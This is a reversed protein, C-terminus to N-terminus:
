PESKLGEDLRKVVGAVQVKLVAKERQLVKAKESLRDLNAKYPMEEIVLHRHRIRSVQCGFFTTAPEVTGDNCQVALRELNALMAEMAIRDSKITRTYYALDRLLVKLHVDKKDFAHLFKVIRHHQADSMGLALDTAMDWYSNLDADIKYLRTEITAALSEYKALHAILANGQERHSKATEIYSMSDSMRFQLLASIEGASTPSSILRPYPLVALNALRKKVDTSFRISSFPLQLILCAPDQEPQAVHQIQHRCPSPAGNITSNHNKFPKIRAVKSSCGDSKVATPIRLM